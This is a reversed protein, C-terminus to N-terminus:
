FYGHLHIAELCLIEFTSFWPGFTERVTGRVGRSERTGAHLPFVHGKM